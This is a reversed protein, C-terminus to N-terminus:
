EKVAALVAVPLEALLESVRLRDGGPFERGTLIERWAKMEPIGGITTDEWVLGLPPCGLRSALRPVVAVVADSGQARVFALVNEAFVGGAELAHYGGEQFLRAHEGRFKLLARTLWLKIAGSRWDGLLEAPSASEVRRAIEARQGFNVERRNDPDVLSLDWLESGQYFDPVGPSMMKLVVQVLSNVMGLHALRRARPRFSALFERGSEAGLLGDIFRDGAELWPENPQLWTTNRKAENVAKRLYERLRGRFEDEPAADDAPWV